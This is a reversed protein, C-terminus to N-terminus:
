KRSEKNMKENKSNFQYCGSGLEIIEDSWPLRVSSTTNVPIEVTMKYLGDQREWSCGLKGYITKTSCEVSDVGEIPLPAILSKKFGPEINELGGLKRYMWEGISGYAYHNFSNMGTSEISRDGLMSNWREWITTAGLSVEYLWSPYDRQLFVEAATKHYGNETLALCLYPTGVFGTVLHNGHRELNEILSSLIRPRHETPMLNFHLTLICATQTESVLRGTATIYEKRFRVLIDNYLESYSSADQEKGLVKAAQILLSTSYLYYANAILYVDTAGVSRSIRGQGPGALRWVSFRAAM